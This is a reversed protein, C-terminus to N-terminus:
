ATRGNNIIFAPLEFSDCPVFRHDALMRHWVYRQRDFRWPSAFVPRDKQHVPLRLGAGIVLPCRGAM